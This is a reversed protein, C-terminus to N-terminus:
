LFCHGGDCFSEYGPLTEQRAGDTILDRIPVAYRTLYAQGETLGIHDLDRIADDIQYVRARQQEPIEVWRRITKGPCFTCSSFKPVPVGWHELDDAQQSRTRGLRVAPFELREWQVRNKALAKTARIQEDAAFGIWKELRKPKGIRKLWASCARRMPAIKFERTCKHMSRAPSTGPRGDSIFLPPSDCRTANREKLKLLHDGLSEKAACTVFEIGHKICDLKVQVVDEYTWLHEEGTDAFFVAVNEPRPLVGHIMAYILWKSSKGGSYSIGVPIM